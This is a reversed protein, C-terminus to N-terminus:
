PRYSGDGENLAQSLWEPCAPAPAPPCNRAISERLIQAVAPFGRGAVIKAAEELNFALDDIRRHLEIITALIRGVDYGDLPQGDRMYRALLEAAETKSVLGDQSSM